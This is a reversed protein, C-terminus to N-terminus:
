LFATLVLAKWFSSCISHYLINLQALRFCGLFLALHTNSCYWWLVPLAHLMAPFVWTSLFCPSVCMAHKPFVPVRVDFSVRRKVPSCARIIAVPAVPTRAPPLVDSQVCGPSFEQLVLASPACMALEEECHLVFKFDVM